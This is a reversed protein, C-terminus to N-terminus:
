RLLMDPAADGVTSFGLREYLRLAEDNDAEVALHIIPSRVALADRIALATALAGLGRGRFAPRTGISSLYSGEKTTARRAIAAPVGAISVLLVACGPRSVCALVDNELAVRRDPDVDFADSLVLSADVAWRRREAWGADTPVGDANAGAVTERRRITVDSDGGFAHRVRATLAEVLSDGDGHRTLVMRRDAGLTEFGAAALRVAMDSPTGGLALPRIHPLRGLTSFLTIVEDLRRDFGPGDAPWAPAILRNWFPEADSPDHFLWGDGLDRLQRAPTQQARAEHIVLRRALDSDFTRVGGVCSGYTCAPRPASDHRWVVSWSSRMREVMRPMAVTDMAMRRAAHEPPVVVGVAAGTAVVAASAGHASEVPVVTTGVLTASLVQVWGSLALTPSTMVQVLPSVTGWRTASSSPEQPIDAFMGPPPDFLRTKLLAPV